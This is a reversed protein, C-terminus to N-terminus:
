QRDAKMDRPMTAWFFYGIICGYILPIIMLDFPVEIQFFYRILDWAVVPATGAALRPLTWKFNKNTIRDNTTFWHTMLVGFIYPITWVVGAWERIVASFTDGKEDNFAVYVDWVTIITVIIVTLIITITRSKM